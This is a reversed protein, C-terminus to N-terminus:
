KIKHSPKSVYNYNYLLNYCKYGKIGKNARKESILSFNDLTCNKLIITQIWQRFIQNIKFLIKNKHCKAQGLERPQWGDTDILVWWVEDKIIEWSQDFTLHLFVKHVCNVKAVAWIVGLKDQWWLSWRKYEHQNKIDLCEWILSKSVSHDLCISPLNPELFIKAAVSCNCCSVKNESIM